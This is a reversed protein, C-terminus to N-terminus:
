AHHDTCNSYCLQISLAIAFFGLSSIIDFLLIYLVIDNRGQSEFHLIPFVSMTLVAMVFVAWPYCVGVELETKM